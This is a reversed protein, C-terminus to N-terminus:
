DEVKIKLVGMSWFFRALLIKQIAINRAFTNKKDKSVVLKKM